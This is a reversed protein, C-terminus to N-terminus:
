GWYQMEAEPYSSLFPLSIQFISIANRSSAGFIRSKIGLMRFSSGGIWSCQRIRMQCHRILFYNESIKVVALLRHLRHNQLKQKNDILDFSLMIWNTQKSIVCDDGEIKVLIPRCMLEAITVDKEAALQEVASQLEKVFSVQAGRHEGPAKFVTSKSDLKGRYCSTVHVSVAASLEEWFTNSVFHNDLLATVEHVSRKGPSSLIDYSVDEATISSRLM